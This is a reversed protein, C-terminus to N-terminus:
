INTQCLEQLRTQQFSCNIKSAWTKPVNTDDINLFGSRTSLDSQWVALWDPGLPRDAWLGNLSPPRTSGRSNACFQNVRGFRLTATNILLSCPYLLSSSPSSFLLHFYSLCPFSPNMQVKSFFTESILDLFLRIEVLYLASATPLTSPSPTDFTCAHQKSILM